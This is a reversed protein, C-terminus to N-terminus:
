RACVTFNFSNAEIYFTEPSKVIIEFRPLVYEKVEFTKFINGNGPLEIIWTGKFAHYKTFNHQRHM